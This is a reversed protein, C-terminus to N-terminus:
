KKRGARVLEPGLRKGTKIGYVDRVSTQIQVLQRLYAELTPLEGAHRNSQSRMSSCKGQSKTRKERRRQCGSMHLVPVRIFCGQRARYNVPPPVASAMETQAKAEVDAKQKSVELSEERAIMSKIVSGHCVDIYICM